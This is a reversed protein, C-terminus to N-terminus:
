VEPVDNHQIIEPAEVLSPIALYSLQTFGTGELDISTGSNWGDDTWGRVFANDTSETGTVGDADDSVINLQIRYIREAVNVGEEQNVTTITEQDGPPIVKFLFFIKDGQLLPMYRWLMRTESEGLGDISVTEHLEDYLHLMIKGDFSNLNSFREPASNLLQSYILRSPFHQAKYRNEVSEDPASEADTRMRVYDTGGEETGYNVRFDVLEKINTHFAFASKRVLDGRVPRENSFLDAVPVGFVSQAVYRVYDANVKTENVNQMGSGYFHIRDLPDVIAEAPIVNKTNFFKLHEGTIDGDAELLHFMRFKIDQSNLDNVDVGDAQYQFLHRAYSVPIDLQANFYDETFDTTDEGGHLLAKIANVEISLEKLYFDQNNSGM